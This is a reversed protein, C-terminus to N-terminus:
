HTTWNSALHKLTPKTWVPVLKNVVPADSFATPSILMLLNRKHRTRQSSAQSHIMFRLLCHLVLVLNMQLDNQKSLSHSHLRCWILCYLFSSNLSFSACKTPSQSEITHGHTLLFSSDVSSLGLSSTDRSVYLHPACFRGICLLSWHPYVSHDAATGCLKTFLWKLLSVLLSSVHLKLVSGLAWSNCVSDAAATFPCSIDHKVYSRHSYMGLTVLHNAQLKQERQRSGSSCECGHHVFLMCTIM